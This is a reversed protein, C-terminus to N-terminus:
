PKVERFAIVETNAVRIEGVDIWKWGFNVASEVECGVPLEATTQGLRGLAECGQRTLVLKFRPAPQILIIALLVFLFVVMVVIAMLIPEFKLKM